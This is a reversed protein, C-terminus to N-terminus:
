TNKMNLANLKILVDTTIPMKIQALRLAEKMAAYNDKVMLHHELPKGKATIGEELL